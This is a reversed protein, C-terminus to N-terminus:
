GTKPPLPAGGPRPWSSRHRPHLSGAFPLPRSRRTQLQRPLCCVLLARIGAAVRTDVVPQRGCCQGPLGFSRTNVVISLRFCGNRKGADVPAFPTRRLRLSRCSIGATRWFASAGSEVVFFRHGTPTLVSPNQVAKHMDSWPPDGAEIFQHRRSPNGVDVAFNM